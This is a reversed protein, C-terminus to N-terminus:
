IVYTAAAYPLNWSNSVAYSTAVPAAVVAAPAAAVIPATALVHNHNRVQYQSSTATVVPAAAVAVPAAHLAVAPAAFVSPRAYTFAIVACIVIIYKFM